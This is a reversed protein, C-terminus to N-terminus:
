PHITLFRDLISSLCDGGDANTVQVIEIQKVGLQEMFGLVLIANTLEVGAYDVGFDADTKGAQMPVVAQLEEVTFRTKGLFNAIGNGFM